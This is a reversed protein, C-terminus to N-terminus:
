LLTNKLKRQKWKKAYMEAKVASPFFEHTATEQYFIMHGFLALTSGMCVDIVSHQKLFMTSLIILITLALSSRRIVVHKQLSKCSSLSMYVALSVFVHMSPLINTPTDTRYLLRVADVFINERPFVAPRLQQMNPFLFSVILFVTMGMMLNFALQYYEHKDENFFVFYIITIFVYPFWLIYPIIFWECFPIMDDFITHIIHYGYIQRQELYQFFFMYIIGYVLIVLGHKYRKVFSM